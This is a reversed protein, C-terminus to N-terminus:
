GKTRAKFKVCVDPVAAASKIDVVIPDPISLSSSSSFRGVFISPAPRPPSYLSTAAEM